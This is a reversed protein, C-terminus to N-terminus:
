KENGFGASKLKSKIRDKTQEGEITMMAQKGDEFFFVTPTGFKEGLTVREKFEKEEDETLNSYNIVYAEQKYDKLAGAFRPTFTKCHECDTQKVYLIFSDKKEIKNTLQQVNIDKLYKDEDTPMIAVIILAVIIVAFIILGLYKKM